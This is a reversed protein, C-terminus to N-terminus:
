ADPQSREDPSSLLRDVRTAYIGFVSIFLLFLGIIAVALVNALTISRGFVVRALVPAALTMSAFFGVTLVLTLLSLLWALAQRGRLGQELAQPRADSRTEARPDTPASQIESM